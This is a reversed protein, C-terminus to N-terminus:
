DSKEERRKAAAFQKMGFFGPSSRGKAVALQQRGTREPCDEIKKLILPVAGTAADREALRRVLHRYQRTARRRKAKGLLEARLIPDASLESLSYVNGCIYILDSTEPM